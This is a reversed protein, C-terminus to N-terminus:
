VNSPELLLLSLSIKESVELSFSLTVAGASGRQLVAVDSNLASIDNVAVLLCDIEVFFGQLVELLVKGNIIEFFNNVLANEIGNM